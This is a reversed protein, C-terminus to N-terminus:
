SAYDKELQIVDGLAVGKEDIVGGDLELVIHGGKVWKSMRWPKMNRILHLVTGEKSLFVADFEFRMFFSHIDACPVIWLGHDHPIGPRGMLGKFRTFFNDAMEVTEVVVNGRTENVVRM